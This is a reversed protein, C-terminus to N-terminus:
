QILNRNVYRINSSKNLLHNNLERVDEEVCNHVSKDNITHNLELPCSLLKAPEEEHVQNKKM